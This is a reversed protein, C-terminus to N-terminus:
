SLSTCWAACWSPHWARSRLDMNRTGYRTVWNRFACPWTTATSRPSSRSRSSCRRRSWRRGVSRPKTGLRTSCWSTPICNRTWRVRPTMVSSPPPLRGPRGNPAGAEKGSVPPRWRNMRGMAERCAADHAALVREDRGLLAVISVSKPASAVCDYFVRRDVQRQRVTLRSGTVPHLNECLRTYELETVPAAPDLGLREIGKGFWHGQVTQEESHYDGKALHERFYNKAAKLNKQPRATIM